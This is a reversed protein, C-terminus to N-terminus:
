KSTGTKGEMQDKFREVAAKRMAKQADTLKDLYWKHDDSNLM